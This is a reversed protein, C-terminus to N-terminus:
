YSCRIHTIQGCAGNIIMDRIKQVLPNSRTQYGVQFVRNTDQVAKIMKQAQDIDYTMTKECYVHKGADLADIPWRTICICPRQM